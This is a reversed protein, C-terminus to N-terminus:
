SSDMEAATDAGTAPLKRPGHMRLREVEEALAQRNRVLQERRRLMDQVKARRTPWRIVEWVVIVLYFACLAGRMWDPMPISWMGGVLVAILTMLVLLRRVTFQHWPRKEM